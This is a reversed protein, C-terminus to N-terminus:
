EVLDKYNESRRNGLFGRVVERFAHRARQVDGMIIHEFVEDRSQPSVDGNHSVFIM